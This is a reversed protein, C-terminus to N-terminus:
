QQQHPPVTLLLDATLGTVWWETRDYLDIGWLQGHPSACVISLQGLTWRSREALWEVQCWRHTGYTSRTLQVGADPISDFALGTRAQVREIFSLASEISTNVNVNDNNTTM